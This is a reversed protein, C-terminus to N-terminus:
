RIRLSESQTIEVGPVEVGNKIDQLIASKDVKIDTSIVYNVPILSTDIVNVAERNKQYKISFIGAKIDEINLERLTEDIVEKLRDAKNELAKRRDAMRKEEAKFVEAEGQVNKMYKVYNEIKEELTGEIEDLAQKFDERSLENDEILHDLTIYAEKIEYLKM